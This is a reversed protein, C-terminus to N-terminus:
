TSGTAPDKDSTAVNPMQADVSAPRDGLLVDRLRVRRQRRHREPGRPVSAAVAIGPTLGTITVPTLGNVPLQGMPGTTPVKDDQDAVTSTPLAGQNTFGDTFLM